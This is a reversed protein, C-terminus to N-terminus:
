PKAKRYYKGGFLRVGIWMVLGMAAPILYEPNGMSLQVCKALAHDALLRDVGAAYAEDHMRCCDSWDWSLIRDLWSTCYDTPLTM